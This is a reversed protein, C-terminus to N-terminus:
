NRKVIYKMINTISWENTQMAKKESKEQNGAKNTSPILRNLDKDIGNLM